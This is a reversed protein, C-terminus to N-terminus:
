VVAHHDIIIGKNGDIPEVVKPRPKQLLFHLRQSRLSQLLRPLERLPVAMAINLSQIPKGYNEMHKEM